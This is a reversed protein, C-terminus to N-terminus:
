IELGFKKKIESEIDLRHCCSIGTRADRWNHAIEACQEATFKEAWTIGSSRGAYYAEQLGPMNPQQYHLWESFSDNKIDSM